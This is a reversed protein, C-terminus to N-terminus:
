CDHASAGLEDLSRRDAPGQVLLVRLHQYMGALVVIVPHRCDEESIQVNGLWPSVQTYARTRVTEVRAPASAAISNWM